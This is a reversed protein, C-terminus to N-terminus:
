ESRLIWQQIMQLEDQSLADQQPPGEIWLEPPPLAGGFREFPDGEPMPDGHVDATQQWALNIDHCTQCGGSEGSDFRQIPGAYAAYRPDPDQWRMQGDADIVFGGQTKQRLTGMFQGVGARYAARDYDFLWGALSRGTIGGIIGGGIALITSCVPAGPGCVLGAAAGAAAGGAFGGVFGGTVEATVRGRQEPAALAIEAGGTVIGVVFFVRGGWRLYKMGRSMQGATPAGTAQEPLANVVVRGDDAITAIVQAGTRSDWGIVPQGRRGAEGMWGYMRGQSAQNVGGGPSRGPGLDTVSTPAGTPSLPGFRGGMAEEAVPVAWRVCNMGQCLNAASPVGTYRLSSPGVDPLGEAAALAAARTVPLEFSRAGTHTFMPIGRGPTYGQGYFSGPVGVRGSIVGGGTSVNTGFTGPLSTPAHSRLIMIRGDVRAYVATHGWTLRSQPIVAHGPSGYQPFSVLGIANQGAPAFGYTRLHQATTTLVAGSTGGGIELAPAAVTGIVDGVQAGPGSQAPTPLEDVLQGEPMADVIEPPLGQAETLSYGGELPLGAPRPLLGVEGAPAQQGLPRRYSETQLVLLNGSLASYDPADQGVESIHQRLMAITEDLEETTLAEAWQPTISSRMVEERPSRRVTACGCGQQQAVHTLEHALLAQGTKTGPAYAGPAFSVRNGYTVARANLAEALRGARRSTDLRVGPPTPAWGSGAAEDATREDAAVRQMARNGVVSLVRTPSPMTAVPSAGTDREDTATARAARGAFQSTSSAM